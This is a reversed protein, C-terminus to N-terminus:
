YSSPNIFGLKFSQHFKGGGGFGVGCCWLSSNKLSHKTKLGLIYIIYLGMLEYTWVWLNMIHEVINGEGGRGGGGEGGGGMKVQWCSSTNPQFKLQSISGVLTLHFEKVMRPIWPNLSSPPNLLDGFGVCLLERIHSFLCPKFNTGLEGFYYIWCLTMSNFFFPMPLFLHNGTGLYDFFGWM